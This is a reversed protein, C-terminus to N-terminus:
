TNNIREFHLSVYNVWPIEALKSSTVNFVIIVDYEVNIINGTFYWYQYQQQQQQQDRIYLIMCEFWAESRKVEQGKLFQRVFCCKFNVVLKVMLLFTTFFGVPCKFRNGVPSTSPSFQFGTGLPPVNIRRYSYSLLSCGCALFLLIQLFM